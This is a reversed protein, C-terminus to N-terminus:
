WIRDDDIVFGDDFGGGPTVEKVAAAWRQAQAKVFAAFPETTDGLPEFGFDPIKAQM